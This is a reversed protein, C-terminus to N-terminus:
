EYGEKRLVSNLFLDTELDSSNTYYCFYGNNTLSCINNNNYIKLIADNINEFGWSNIVKQKYEPYEKLLKMAWFNYLEINTENLVQHILEEKNM